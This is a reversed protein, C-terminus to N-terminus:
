LLPVFACYNNICSAGADCCDTAQQCREDLAACSDRQLPACVGMGGGAPLRCAGACCDIGSECAAANPACRNLPAFARFHSTMSFEQGAVYFPPHSPDLAYNGDPQIDIAFGWLVRVVGLSGFHRLSDFFVWFYGGAAVPSVTPYYNRHLDETGFPLYTAEREADAPTEFGMAQALLTVHGTGLDAIYLDSREKPAPLSGSINAQIAVGIGSDSGSYMASETRVFVVARNDPLFFPWGPRVTGAPDESVLLRYDSAKHARIDYRMVSLSFGQRAADNFVLWAGDPSFMPMGAGPPIDTGSIAAGTTTDFLTAPLPNLGGFPLLMTGTSSLFRSGDPYLAGFSASPGFTAGPPMPAIPLISGAEVEGAANLQYGLAYTTPTSLLATSTADATTTSRQALARTGDSSFAHCGVCQTTEGVGLAVANGRPPIRLVRAAVGASSPDSATTSTLCTNYYLSGKISAPAITIRSRLPGVIEGNVRLTIELTFPDDRGLTQRGALDWVHQPIAVQANPQAAASSQLYTAHVAAIGGADAKPRFLADGVAPPLVGKYDFFRSRMHLYVADAAGESRWMVLPALTGRPFVTGPYPYLWAADGVPGGALLRRVESAPLGASNAGQTEDLAVANRPVALSPRHEGSGAAARDSVSLPEARDSGLSRRSTCGSALVCLLMAWSA